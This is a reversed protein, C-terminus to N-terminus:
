NGMVQLLNAIALGVLCSISGVTGVVRGNSAGGSRLMGWAHLIRSLFFVAGYAHLWGAPGHNLEYAALLLLFLPISEIANGHVRIARALDRNGGDGIGVRLTRRLGVVVLALLVVLLALLAAYVAAIPVPFTV